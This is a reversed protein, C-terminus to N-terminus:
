LSVTHSSGMKLVIIQTHVVFSGPLLNRGWLREDARVNSKRINLVHQLPVLFPCLLKAWLCSLALMEAFTYTSHLLAAVLLDYQVEASTSSVSLLSSQEKRMHYQLTTHFDRRTRVRPVSSFSKWGAATQLSWGWCVMGRSLSTQEPLPSPRLRGQSHQGQSPLSSLQAQCLSAPLGGGGVEAWLKASQRM